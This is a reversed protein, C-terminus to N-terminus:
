TLLIAFSVYLGNASIADFDSFQGYKYINELGVPSFDKHFVKM